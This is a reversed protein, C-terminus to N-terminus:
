VALAAEPFPYVRARGLVHLRLGRPFLARIPAARVDLGGAYSGFAPLLLRRGDTVFCRATVRRARLQLTAKPHFHGSIEGAAREPPRGQHRLVFPGVTLEPVARGGWDAPPQPDHNGCVWIWDCQGTLARLCAGDVPDLRGAADADHFSDGLCVLTQPRHRRVLDELAALTARSDYPPLLHGRAALASGKELHLDAVAVLRREPWLVAGAPDLGLRSGNVEIEQEM